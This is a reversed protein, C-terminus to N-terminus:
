SGGDDPGAQLDGLEDESTTQLGCEGPQVDAVTPQGQSDEEITFAAECSASSSGQYNSASVTATYTGPDIGDARYDWVWTVNVPDFHGGHAVSSSSFTQVSEVPVTAGNEDEVTLDISDDDVDYSGWPTNLIGLIALKNYVDSPVVREVQFANQVPLEFTPPFFEGSWWRVTHFGYRDGNVDSFEDYVLFFDNEKEIVTDEASGLNIPIELVPAAGPVGTTVDEPGFQGQAVVEAGGSEIAERIPPAESTTSRDGLDAEYLTGEVVFNPQTGPDWGWYPYVCPVNEPHPQVCSTEGTSVPWSHFDVTVYLNATIDENGDLYIDKTQGRENHLQSYDGNAQFEPRNSVDVFGATSFLALKHNPNEKCTEGPRTAQPNTVVTSGQPTCWDFVGRGYNNEGAPAQTNSPMPEDLTHGFVHGYFTVRDTDEADFSVDSGGDSQAAVGSLPTALLGITAMILAWRNM